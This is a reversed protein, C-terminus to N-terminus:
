FYLILNIKEILSKSKSILNRKRTELDSMTLWKQHQELQQEYCLHASCWKLKFIILLQLFGYVSQFLSLIFHKIIFSM